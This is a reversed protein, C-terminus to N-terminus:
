ERKGNCDVLGTTEWQHLDDFEDFSEYIDVPVDIGLHQAVAIRHHGNMVNNDMMAIPTRIGSRRISEIFTESCEELKWNLVKQKTEPSEMTHILEMYLEPELEGMEHKEDIMGESDCFEITDDEILQSLTMTTSQM